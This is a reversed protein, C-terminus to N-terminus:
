TAKRHEVLFRSLPFPLCPHNHTQTNLEASEAPSPACVPVNWQTRLWKLDFVNKATALSTAKNTM